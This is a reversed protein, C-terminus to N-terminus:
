AVGAPLRHSAWFAALVEAMGRPDQIQMFHTTGTLVFGEAHPLWALLLRHTEGFRSWLADSEGGLVPLTPQSIRRAEAEGFRWGLQGSMEREFWTEADAVAQAFAGPLVSDLTSRYGPWRAQLFEDVVVSAGAEWYREAGRALSERYGQASAGVMLGPELLALSHAVGPADLALQLAVDGGYSHGVVHAREVGLHRLLTRCDAAQKAVNVPGSARSSDAYGRRHYLILRYRGALSSEALLPRFTDAIFAGHIFVVPEGTGSVEYELEAGDIRARELQQRGRPVGAVYPSHQRLRSKPEM